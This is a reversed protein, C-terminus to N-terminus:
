SRTDYGNKKSEAINRATLETMMRAIDRKLTRGERVNRTRSGAGGFRFSRLAERMEAIKKHLDEVSYKKFDTM